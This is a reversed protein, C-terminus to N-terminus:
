NSQISGITCPSRDGRRSASSVSASSAASSSCIRTRTGRKPVRRSCSTACIARYGRTRPVEQVCAACGNHLSAQRIRVRSRSCTCPPPPAALHPNRRDGLQRRNTIWWRSRNQQTWSHVEANTRSKSRGRVVKPLSGRVVKLLM